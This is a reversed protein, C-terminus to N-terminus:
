GNRDRGARGRVRTVGPKGSDQVMCTSAWEPDRPLL